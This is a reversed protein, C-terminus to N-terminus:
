QASRQNQEQKYAKRAQDIQYGQAFLMNLKETKAERSKVEADLICYFTNLESADCGQEAFMKIVNKTQERREVLTRLPQHMYFEAPERTM